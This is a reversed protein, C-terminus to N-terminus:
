PEERSPVHLRLLAYVGIGAVALVTIEGLTDFARFDVLIVNVINRGKALLYSNESFYSSLRSSAPTATAVLVLLTVMAGATVAPIADRIRERTTSYVRYRPLRYLVLVLLIVTLTDISFQTMALDPASFMIYVLVVSYGIVGLAVIATLRSRAQVAIWTAVLIVAAVIWEYSRIDSWGQIVFWDQVHFFSLGVLVVTTLITILLYYHLHGSQLIRTQLRALGLMGNLLVTYGKAPGVHAIFDLHRSAELLLDRRLYAAVGCAFTIASLLLQLNLGHLLSLKAIAPAAMVAAVAPSVISGAVGEPSVGILISIGALLAPGLWLSFPAEHPTKPTQKLVGLFPVISVLGAAVVMFVNTLLVAATLLWPAVPAELTAGYLLEKGVFGYLPPLGAMSLAALIAAGATIPMVRFLGGLQTVNRTGTGHDLIGAVLFLAAKYLCHIILYTILAETAARTGLGLLFVLVGLIAVTSYALVAKLDTKKISLYAGILMTTAGILLISVKWLPTGGLIPSLRALLYIGAKVMTASHLYTSVPTPAAMANPLWFHFPFQASKTMAGILILIFIPKYLSQTRIAEAQGLLVPLEFSGGLKGLMLFGALLALGGLSTVLLAQWAASRASEREHESGILLYSTLSTLEWFIFVTILNGAFVVGLMAAMFSLICVYFRAFGQHGALYANAYILVLVGIGTIILGFLLSLGDLYLSIEIGLSPVWPYRFSFVQGDAIPTIFPTLYAFLGAPLAALLWGTRNRFLRHLFPVALALIFGSLVVFLM